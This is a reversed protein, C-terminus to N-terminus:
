NSKQQYPVEKNNGNREERDTTLHKYHVILSYCDRLHEEMRGVGADRLRAQRVNHLSRDLRRVRHHLRRQPAVDHQCAAGSRQRAKGLAQVNSSITSGPRQREQPRLEPQMANSVRTATHLCSSSRARAGDSHSTLTSSASLHTRQMRAAYILRVYDSRSHTALRM